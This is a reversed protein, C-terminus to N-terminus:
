GFRVETYVPEGEDLRIREPPAEPEGIQSVLLEVGEPPWNDAFRAEPDYYRRVSTVTGSEVTSGRCLDRPRVTAGPRVHVAHVWGMVVEEVGEGRGCRAAFLLGAAWPGRAAAQVAGPGAVRGGGRCPRPGDWRLGRLLRRPGPHVGRAGPVRGGDQGDTRWRRRVGPAGSTPPGSRSTCNACPTRTPDPSRWRTGRASASGTCMSTWRSWRRSPTRGPTPSATPRSPLATRGGPGGGSATPPPAPPRDPTCGTRKWVSPEVSWAPTTRATSSAWCRCVSCTGPRTPPTACPWTSSPVVAAPRPATRRPPCCPPPAGPPAPPSPGRRNPASRWPSARHPRPARACVTHPRM